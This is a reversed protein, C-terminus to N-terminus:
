ARRSSWAASGSSQRTARCPSRSRRRARRAGIIRALERLARAPVNAELPQAVPAELEAHKVSLRYSDTAVMTLRTARPRSWCAPSSRACRTARPPAPSSTSRRRWRAAPCGSADRGRAGAPAPLRRRAPHPPSLARRRRRDRRRAARLAARPDGRGAAPQARRRRVPPGAAARDRGARDERRRAHQHAGAGHRDRAPDTLRRRRDGPHGGLSPLTGRTSVARGALQLGGSLSDRSVSLKM